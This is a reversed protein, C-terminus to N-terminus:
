LQKQFFKDSNMIIKRVQEVARHILNRASQYNLEMIGSIENYNLGEFFRLYIAEKQRPALANLADRLLIKKLQDLDDLESGTELSYDVM